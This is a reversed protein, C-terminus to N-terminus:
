EVPPIVDMELRDGRKPLFGIASEILPRMRKLLVRAKKGSKAEQVLISTSIRRKFGSSKKGNSEATENVTVEANCVVIVSEEGFVPNLIEFLNSRLRESIEREVYIISKLSDKKKRWSHSSSYNKWESHKSQGRSYSEKDRAHGPNLPLFVLFIFLFLIATRLPIRYKM